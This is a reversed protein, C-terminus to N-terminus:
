VEVTRMSPRVRQSRVTGSGDGAITSSMPSSSAIRPLSRVYSSARAASTRKDQALTQSLEQPRALAHRQFRPRTGSAADERSTVAQHLADVFATRALHPARSVGLKVAVDRDLHEARARIVREARPERILRPAGGSDDMGVHDRYEVLTTVARLREHDHLEHGALRRELSSSTRLRRRPGGGDSRLRRMPTSSRTSATSVRASATSGSRRWPLAPANALANASAASPAPSRVVDSPLSGTVRAGRGQDNGRKSLVTATRATSATSRAVASNKADKERAPREEGAFGAAVAAPLTEGFTTPLFSPSATSISRPAPYAVTAQSTACPDPPGHATTRWSGGGPVAM